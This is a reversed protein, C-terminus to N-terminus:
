VEVVIKVEVKVGAQVVVELNVQVQGLEDGTQKEEGSATKNRRSFISSDFFKHILLQKSGNQSGSTAMKNKATTAPNCATHALAGPAM